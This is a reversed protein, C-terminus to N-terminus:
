WSEVWEICERSTAMFRDRDPRGVDWLIVIRAQLGGRNAGPTMRTARKVVLAPYLDVLM